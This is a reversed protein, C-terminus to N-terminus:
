KAVQVFNKKFQWWISATQTNSQQNEQRIYLSFRSCISLYKEMSAKYICHAHKYLKNEYQILQVTILFM